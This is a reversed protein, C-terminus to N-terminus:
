ADQRRQGHRVQIHGLSSLSLLLLFLKSVQVAGGYIQSTLTHGGQVAEQGRTVNGKGKRSVQEWSEDYSTSTASGAYMLIVMLAKSSM